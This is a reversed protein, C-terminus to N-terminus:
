SASDTVYVVYINGLEAGTTGSTVASFAAYSIGEAVRKHWDKYISTSSQVRMRFLNAAVGKGQLQSTEGSPLESYSCYCDDWSDCFFASVRPADTISSYDM